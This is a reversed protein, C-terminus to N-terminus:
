MYSFDEGIAYTFFVWLKLILGLSGISLQLRKPVFLTFALMEFITM